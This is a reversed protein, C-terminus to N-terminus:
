KFQFKIIKSKKLFFFNVDMMYVTKIAIHVIIKKIKFTDFKKKKMNKSNYFKFCM